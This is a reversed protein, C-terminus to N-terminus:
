SYTCDRVPISDSISDGKIIGARVADIYDATETGSGRMGFLCPHARGIDGGQAERLMGLHYQELDHDSPHDM